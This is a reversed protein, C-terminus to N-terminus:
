GDRDVGKADCACSCCGNRLDTMTGEIREKCKPCVAWWDSQVSLFLNLENSAEDTMGSRRTLGAEIVDQKSM